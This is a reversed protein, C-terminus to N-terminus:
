SDLLVIGVSKEGKNNNMVAESVISMSNRIYDSMTKYGTKNMAKQWNKYMDDPVLINVKKKKYSMTIM